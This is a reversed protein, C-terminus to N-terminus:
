RFLRMGLWVVGMIWVLCGVSCGGFVLLVALLGYLGDSRGRAGFLM